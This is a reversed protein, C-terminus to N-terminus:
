WASKGGDMVLNAGTMFSSADSSLFLMAANYEDVNAMRGLMNLSEYKKRFEEPVESKPMGGPSFANVRVGYKSLYSAWARTLGLIGSKATIYAISKFKDDGYIRNDVAISAVESAVNVIVGRCQRMMIPAVAKSCNHSGTLDVQIERDWLDSPYEEYPAFMKKSEDSGVAPNLGANNILVHVTGFKEVVDKVASVLGSYDTIDVGIGCVPYFPYRSVLEYVCEEIRTKESHDFLVVRAGAEVFARAYQMGLFGCGGTIIVVKGKMSFRDMVSLTDGGRGNGKAM